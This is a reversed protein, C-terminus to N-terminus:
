CACAHTEIYYRAHCFFLPRSRKSRADIQWIDRQANCSNLALFRIILSVIAALHRARGVGVVQCAGGAPQLLHRLDARGLRRALRRGRREAQLQGWVASTEAEIAVERRGASPFVPAVPSVPLSFSPTSPTCTSCFYMDGIGAACPRVPAFWGSGRVPIPLLYFRALAIAPLRLSTPLCIDCWYIPMEFFLTFSFAGCPYFTFFFFLACCLEARSFM